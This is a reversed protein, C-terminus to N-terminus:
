PAVHLLWPHMRTGTLPRHPLRASGPVSIPIFPLWAGRGRNHSAACLCYRCHNVPPRAPCSVKVASGSPLHNQWVTVSLAAERGGRPGESARLLTSCRGVGPNRQWPAARRPCRPGRAAGRQASLPHPCVAHAADRSACRGADSAWRGGGASLAKKSPDSHVSGHINLVPLLLMVKKLLTDCTNLTASIILDDGGTGQAHHAGAM